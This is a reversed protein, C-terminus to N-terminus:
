WKVAPLHSFFESLNVIEHDDFKAALDEHGECKDGENRCGELWNCMYISEQGALNPINDSVSVGETGHCNSCEADALKKVASIQQQDIDAIHGMHEHGVPCTGSQAPAAVLSSCSLGWLCLLSALSAIFKM